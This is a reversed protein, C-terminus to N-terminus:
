TAHRIGDQDEHGRVDSAPLAKMFSARGLRGGPKFDSSPMAELAIQWFAHDAIVELIFLGCMSRDHRHILSVKSIRLGGTPHVGLEIFEDGIQVLSPTRLMLGHLLDKELVGPRSPQQVHGSQGPPFIEALSCQMITEGSPWPPLFEEFIVGSLIEFETVGRNSALLIKPDLM